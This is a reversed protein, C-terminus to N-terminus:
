EVLDEYFQKNANKLFPIMQRLDKKKADSVRSVCNLPRLRTPLNEMTVGKKFVQTAVWGEAENLTNKVKVIGPEDRTICIWQAKSIQLKAANITADAATKFDFFDEQKMITALFPHKERAEVMVRVLDLPVECKRKRKIKEILAFDRDCSLYSHGSVLYKQQVEDVIGRAILYFWLFLLMRNKNQAACNDSWIILKRKYTVRAELTRLLCSATENGGRGQKKRAEIMKQKKTVYEQGSARRKKRENQWSGEGKKRRETQDSDIRNTDSM